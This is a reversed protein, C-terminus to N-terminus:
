LEAVAGLVDLPGALVDAGSLQIKVAQHFQIVSVGHFNEEGAVSDADLDGVADAEEAQMMDASERYVGPDFLDQQSLVGRFAVTGSMDRFRPEALRQDRLVERFIRSKCTHQLLIDEKILSFKRLFISCSVFPILYLLHNWRFKRTFLFGGSLDASM